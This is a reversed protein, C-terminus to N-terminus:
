RSPQVCARVSTEHRVHSHLGVTLQELGKHLAADDAIQNEANLVSLHVNMSLLFRPVFLRQNGIENSLDCAAQFPTGFLPFTKVQRHLVHLGWAEGGACMVCYSLRKM